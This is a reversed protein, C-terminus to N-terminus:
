ATAAELIRGNDVVPVGDLWISQMSMVADPHNEGGGPLWWPLGLGVADCGVVRMDEVFCGGTFRAAPHLGHTFHIVYGYQGGGARILARDLVARDSGGGSLSRIRGNVEIAIPAELRTYYEHFVTEVVIRGRVSEMEPYMTCSGPITYMGPTAARRPRAAHPKGLTFAVDTGLPSTIRVPRGAARTFAADLAAQRAFFSEIVSGGFLRLLAEATLDSALMYRMAGSKLARDHLQSGAIYPFTLDIWLDCAAVAGALAEPLYPDALKGQYPLQPLTIMMPRAGVAMAAAAIAQIVAPDGATDGTIVLRESPRYALFDSLMAQAAGFLEPRIPRDPM